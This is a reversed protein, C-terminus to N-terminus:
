YGWNIRISDVTPHSGLTDFHLKYRIYRYNQPSAPGTLSFNTIMGPSNTYWDNTSTPGYFVWPGQSSNSFAFQIKLDTSPEWSGDVIFSNFAAGGSIGSDLISSVLEANPITTTAMTLSLTSYNINEASAFGNPSLTMSIPGEQNPGASWDKQYFGYNNWSRTLYFSVSASNQYNTGYETYVTIKQTNSDSIPGSDNIFGVLTSTGEIFERNVSFVKFYRKYPIGNITAIEEGSDITFTNGVPTLKYKSDKTLDYISHWNDKALAIIVEANQRMLSNAQLHAKSAQYTRLSMGILITSGGIFIVGLVIAILIEFLSQGKSYKPLLRYKKQFFSTFNTLM